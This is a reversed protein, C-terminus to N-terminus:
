ARPITVYSTQSKAQHRRICFVAFALGLLATFPPLSVPPPDDYLEALTMGERWAYSRWGEALYHFGRDLGDLARMEENTLSAALALPDRMNAAIRDPHTSNPIIAVNPDRVAWALAIAAPTADHAQAVRLLTHDDLLRMQGHQYKAPRADSGLSAYATIRINAAACYARLDVNSNYPHHEVQVVSPRVRLSPDTVLTRLRNPGINSLGISRVLGMAVLEEMTSWTERLQAASYGRRYAMPPPWTPADSRTCFPWHVLYLDLQEVQLHDLTRRVRNILQKRDCADTPPVKSTLFISDRSVAGEKILAQLTRGVEQENHYVPASDILRYGMSIAARLSVEVDIPKIGWTGFGIQPMSVTPTLTLSAPPM